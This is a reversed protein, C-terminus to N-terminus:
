RVMRGDPDGPRRYRWTQSSRSWVVDAPTLKRFEALVDPNIGWNRQRNKYVYQELSKQQQLKELMWQAVQVASM